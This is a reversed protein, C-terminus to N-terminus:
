VGLGSQGVSSPGGAVGALGAVGQWACAAPGQWGTPGVGSLRPFDACNHAAPLGRPVASLARPITKFPPLLSLARTSM